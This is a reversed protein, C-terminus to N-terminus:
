QSPREIRYRKLKRYLSQRPIGLTRSVESINWGHTNLAALIRQAEDQRYQQRDAPLVWDLPELGLGAPEIQDGRAMFSSRKLVNDLERVNGPWSHKVLLRM